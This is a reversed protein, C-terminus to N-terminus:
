PYYDKKMNVIIEAAQKSIADSLFSKYAEEGILYQRGGKLYLYFWSGFHGVGAIESSRITIVGQEAVSEDSVEFTYWIGKDGGNKLEVFAMM